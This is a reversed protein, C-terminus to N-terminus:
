GGKLKYDEIDELTVINRNKKKAHQVAHEAINGAKKELIKALLEAASDSIKANTSEKVIRKITNKSIKM